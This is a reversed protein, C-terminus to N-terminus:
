KKILNSTSYGDILKVIYIKGGNKEVTDAEICRKGYESGNVHVEPKLDKLFAIPTQEDFVFTYDVYDFGAIMMLRTDQNNIPRKPGKNKKVSSDSNLGVFLIDGQEKAEKLIKEHGKHLIDFTGNLTVIKKGEKKLKESLRSLTKRDVIKDFKDFCIFDVAQTFDAAIYGPTQKRADNLHSVGHGTLLYVSKAGSNKALLIDSAHDGIVWSNSIDLDYKEEAEKVFKPNPKRCDCSDEPNHPCFYIEKIEIGHEKFEKLMHDNFNHMDQEKYLGRGIGSQNSIIFLLFGADKLKKLGDIVGEHLSYDEIKHTYGKDDKNLTGDRDLFIAKRKQNNKM